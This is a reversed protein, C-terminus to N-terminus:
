EIIKSLNLLQATFEAGEAKAATRNIIIQPKEGRTGIGVSIGEEVYEPVGTMTLIDDNRSIATIAEIAYSRISTVYLVNVNNKSCFESVNKVEELDIAICRVAIGGIKYTTSKEAYRTFDDKMVNSVRVGRQYLIGVVINKKNGDNMSRNFSLVKMLIPVQVQVPVPIDQQSYVVSCLCVAIVLMRM